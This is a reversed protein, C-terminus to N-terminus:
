SARRRRKGDSPSAAGRTTTRKGAPNHRLPALSPTSDARERAMKAVLAARTNVGLTRYVSITQNRITSPSRGLEAAIQPSTKGECIKELVRREAPTVRSFPSSLETEIRKTESALWSNPVERCISRLYSLVAEDGTLKALDVAAFASRYSFGGRHWIEYSTKIDSIADARKDRALAIRGRALFAMGKAFENHEFALTPDRRGTLSLAKTLASGAAAPLLSAAESAFHLLSTRMEMDAKSWDVSKLRREALDLHLIAADTSGRRRHFGALMIEAVISAFDRHEGRRAGLLAEYSATDDGALAWLSSFFTALRTQRHATTSTPVLAQAETRLRPFIDLNLTELSLHSLGVLTSSRLYEDSVRGSAFLDITELFRRTALAYRGRQWEVWAQVNLALANYAPLGYSIAEAALADADESQANGDRLWASYARYYAHAAKVERGARPPLAPFEVDDEPNLRHKASARLIAAVAAEDATTAQVNRLAALAAKPDKLRFYMQAVLFRAAPEKSGSLLQLAEEYDGAAFARRGESLPQETSISAFTRKSTQPV